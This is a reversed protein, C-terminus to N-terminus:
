VRCGVGWFRFGLGQFWLGYLEFGLGEVRLCSISAGALSVLDRREEAAAEGAVGLTEVGLAAVGFAAVGLAAVGLARVGALPRVSSSSATAASAQSASTSADLVGTRSKSAAAFSVARERRDEPPAPPAQALSAKPAAAGLDASFFASTVSCGLRDRREMVGTIGTSAEGEDSAVGGARRLRL